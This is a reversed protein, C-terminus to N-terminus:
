KRFPNILKKSEINNLVDEMANLNGDYFTPYHNYFIDFIKKPTRELDYNKIIDKLKIKLDEVGNYISFCKPLIGPGHVQPNKDLRWSMPWSCEPTFIYSGCCLCEAIPLGFSELSQMFYFTADMYIKRIETFTYNGELIKYPINLEELVQIQINRFEESGSHAFDIIALFEKKPLPKLGTSKLYLGIQSWPASPKQTIETVESVALHWDYKAISIAKLSQLEVLLTPTNGIYAIEYFLIPINGVLIRLKEIDYTDNFFATPVYDCLIIADFNKLKDIFIQDKFFYLLKYGIWLHFKYKHKVDKFKLLRKFSNIRYFVKSYANTSNLFQHLSEALVRPSRNEPSSVIAIRIM